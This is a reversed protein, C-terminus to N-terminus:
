QGPVVLTPVSVAQGYVEMELQYISEPRINVDGCGILIIDPRIESPELVIGACKLKREAEENMTCAMSGSDLLATLVVQAGVFSVDTYFLSDAKELKMVNQYIVSKDPIAKCSEEYFLLADKNSLTESKRSM